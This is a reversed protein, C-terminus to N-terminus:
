RHTHMNICISKGEGPLEKIETEGFCRYKTVNVMLKSVVKIELLQCNCSLTISKPVLVRLMNATTHGTPCNRLSEVLVQSSQGMLLYWSFM